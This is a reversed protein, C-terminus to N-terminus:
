GAPEPLGAESVAILLIRQIGLHGNENIFWERLSHGAGAHGGSGITIAPIGLSIPINSDTSGRRLTPSEGFFQTAAIARQV